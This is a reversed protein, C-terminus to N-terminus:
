WHSHLTQSEGKHESYNILRALNDKETVTMNLINSDRFKHRLEAIELLM